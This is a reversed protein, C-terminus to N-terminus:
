RRSPMVSEKLYDFGRNGSALSREKRPTFRRIPQQLGGEGILSAVAFVAARVIAVGAGSPGLLNGLAHAM